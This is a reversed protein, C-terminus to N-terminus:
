RCNASAAGTEPETACDDGGWGVAVSVAVWVVVLVALAAVAALLISRPPRISQKKEPIEPMRRSHGGGSWAFAINATPRDPSVGAADLMPASWVVATGRPVEIRQPTTDFWKRRCM